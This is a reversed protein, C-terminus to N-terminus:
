DPRVEVTVSAHTTSPIRPYGAPNIEGDNAVARLVFTGPESFTATTSLATDSVAADDEPFPSQSPELTVTGAGRYHEWRVNARDRQNLPLGDDSITATLM